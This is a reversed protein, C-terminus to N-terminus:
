EFDITPFGSVTFINQNALKGALRVKRDEYNQM